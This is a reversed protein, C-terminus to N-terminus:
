LSQIKNMQDIEVELFQLFEYFDFNLAEVHTSIASKASRSIGFNIECLIQTIPFDHFKWVTCLISKSLSQKSNSCQILPFKTAFLVMKQGLALFCIAFLYVKITLPFNQNFLYWVRKLVSFGVPNKMTLVISHLLGLNPRLLLRTLNGIILRASAAFKCIFAYFQM